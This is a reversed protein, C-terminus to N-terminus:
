TQTNNSIGLLSRAIFDSTLYLTLTFAIKHKFSYFLFCFSDFALFFAPGKGDDNEAM